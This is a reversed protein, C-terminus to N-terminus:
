AAAMRERRQGSPLTQKIVPHKGGPLFDQNVASRSADPTEGDLEGIPSARM